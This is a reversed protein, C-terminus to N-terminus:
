PLEGAAVMRGILIPMPIWTVIDDFENGAVASRVRSVFIRDASGGNPNPNQAEDVSTGGTAANPGVSWIVVPATSVLTQATGCNVGASVGRGSACVHMLSLAPDALSAIGAARM